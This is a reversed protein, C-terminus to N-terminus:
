IREGIASDCSVSGRFGKGHRRARNILEEAQGKIKTDSRIGRKKLYRSVRYRKDRAHRSTFVFVLILLILIVPLALFPAIFTSRIQIADATVEADGSANAIRHGRVLLRQTNIGYPTCTMLTCFDQGKVIQLDSLDTPEIIRIRDVEYTLTDNLITITFTDGESLEDLNSFLKATPLGRHGSLVTHTSKGGVPLSTGELHGVSTQLIADDTGHCIPLSVNIKPIQIYGMIGQQDFDLINNYAETEAETMKWNVGTRALAKNYASAEQIKKKYDEEDMKEVTDAYSMIARSQHMSNWWNSFPPYLMIAAGILVMGLLILTLYHRKAWERVIEEEQDQSRM